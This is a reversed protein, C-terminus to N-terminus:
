LIVQFRFRKNYISRSPRPIHFFGRSLSQLWTGLYLGAAHTKHQEQENHDFHLSYIFLFHLYIAIPVWM